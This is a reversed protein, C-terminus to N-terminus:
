HFNAKSQINVIYAMQCNPRYKLTHNQILNAGFHSLSENFVSVATKNTCSILRRETIHIVESHQPHDDLFM